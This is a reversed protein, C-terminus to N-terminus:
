LGVPPAHVPVELRRILLEQAMSMCLRGGSDYFVGRVAARGSANVMAHFDCYTWRDVRFPRHFWVAHDVSADTHTGWEGLNHPRFSTGTMDSLFAAVGLHVAPDDPVPELTRVWYRRTSEYTGDPRPASAGIERIDFPAPGEGRPLSEPEPLRTPMPLQYEDGAEGGHFSVAMWLANRDDQRSTVHRTSFTRGDRLADVRLEVPGPRLAGLFMAHLSHPGMEGDVTQMAADLGHAVVVGGFVRDGFWDPATATFREGDPRTALATLLEAVPSPDAAMM